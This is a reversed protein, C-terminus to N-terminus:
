LISNKYEYNLLKSTNNGNIIKGLSKNKYSFDPTNLRKQACIKSYYVEKEIHLPYAANFVQCWKNQKLIAKIIGICDDRHILNILGKPNPVSERKSIMTAPHRSEDVLGAFRLITTKFNINGVLMQEVKQLQLGSNSESNPKTENTIELFCEEEKFVSTSGIFLVNKIGASEIYPILNKIKAVYNSSPNRRLGPPTNLILTDSGDLCQEISGEVSEEELIVKFVDYNDQKLKKLKGESTTTGKIQYNDKQLADALPLGLWGLGLITIRSNM